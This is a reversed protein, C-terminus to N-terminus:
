RNSSIVSTFKQLILDEKLDGIKYELAVEFYKSAKKKNLVQTKGIRSIAALQSEKFTQALALVMKVKFLRIEEKSFILNFSYIQDIQSFLMEESEDFSGDEIQEATKLKYVDFYEQSRNLIETLHEPLEQAHLPLIFVFFLFIFKLMGANYQLGKSFPQKLSTNVDSDFIVVVREKV